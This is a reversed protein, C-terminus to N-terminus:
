MLDYAMRCCLDYASLCRVLMPFMKRSLLCPAANRWRGDPESCTL